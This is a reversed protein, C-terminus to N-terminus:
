WLLSLLNITSHCLIAPLLSQSYHFLLGLVIGYLFPPVVSICWLAPYPFSFHILGFVVASVILGVSLGFRRKAASFLIGRFYVEESIPVLVLLNLARWASRLEEPSQTVPTIPLSQLLVKLVFCLGLACVLAYCYYSWKCKLIGINTISGRKILYLWMLSVFLLSLTGLSIVTEGQACFLAPMEPLVRSLTFTIPIWMLFYILTIWVVEKITWPSISERKDSNVAM